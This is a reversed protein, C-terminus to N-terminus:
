IIATDSLGERRKERRERFSRVRMSTAIRALAEVGDGLTGKGGFAEYAADLSGYTTLERRKTLREIMAHAVTESGMNGGTFEM